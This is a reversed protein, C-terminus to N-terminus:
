PEISVSGKKKVIELILEKVQAAENVQHQIDQMKNTVVTLGIEVAKNIETQAAIFSKLLTFFDHVEKAAADERAERKEAEKSLSTVNTKMQVIVATVGVISTLLSIALAVLAIATNM